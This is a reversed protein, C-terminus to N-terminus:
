YGGADGAEAGGSERRAVMVGYRAGDAPDDGGVGEEDTDVKKVDEPRRPDHLLAPICQILRACRASIFLSPAVYLEPRDPDPDGFRELMEGWGTIRAMDAREIQWGRAQWKDAVTEGEENEAFVDGGAVFNEIQAKRLGHRALMEDLADAHRPILWRRECHEDVIFVRGDGDQILLYIVTYHTFGYDMALWVRRAARVLADVRAIPLVHHDARFTTFYAGAAINWDGDLWSRRRWGTLRELVRIYEANNFGNDRATAPLFRTFTQVGRGAKEAEYPDVFHSKFYDHGVGGPNTTFYRRPRWGEKSSRNCSTIDEIKQKTLTTAEEIGIVDYELGLYKDIDADNQFHGLIIRSGNKFVLEGQSPVFRWGLVSPPGLTKILLDRFGEKLSKGSKRLLLCKLGPFRQCDDAGLQALMWHSKGGGRAGGYGIEEPGDPADCQRALASAQCQKPQLVVGAKLFNRLQEEPMGARQASEVYRGIANETSLRHLREAEAMEVRALGAADVGGAKGMAGFKDTPNTRPSM